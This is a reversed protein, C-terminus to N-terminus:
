SLKNKLYDNNNNNNNKITYIIIIYTPMNRVGIDTSFWKNNCNKKCITLSVDILM